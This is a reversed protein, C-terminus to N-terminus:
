HKSLESLVQRSMKSNAGLSGFNALHRWLKERLLLSLVQMLDGTLALLLTSKHLAIGALLKRVQPEKLAWALDSLNFSMKRTAGDPIKPLLRELATISKYCAQIPGSPAFLTPLAEATKPHLDDQHFCSLIARLSTVESTIIVMDRPADKANAIFYSCVRIVTDTLQIFAVISAAVEAM